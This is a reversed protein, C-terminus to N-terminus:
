QVPGYRFGYLYQLKARLQLQADDPQGGGTLADIWKQAVKRNAKRVRKEYNSIKDQHGVDSQTMNLEKRLRIMCSVFDEGDRIAFIWRSAARAGRLGQTGQPLPQVAPAPDQLIPAQSTPGSTSGGGIRHEYQADLNIPTFNVPQAPQPAPRSARKRRGGIAHEYEANPDLPTFGIEQQATAPKQPPGETWQFLSDQSAREYLARLAGREDGAYFNILKDAHMFPLLDWGKENRLYTNLSSKDIHILNAAKTQTGGAQIVDRLKTHFEKCAAKEQATRPRTRKSKATPAVIGPPRSSNSRKRSGDAPGTAAPTPRTHAPPLTSLQTPTPPPQPVVTQRLDHYATETDTYTRSRRHRALAIIYNAVDIPQVHATGSIDALATHLPLRRALCADVMAELDPAPAAAPVPGPPGQGAGSLAREKAVIAKWAQDWDELGQLSVSSSYAIRALSHQVRELSFDWQALYAALADFTLAQLQPDRVCGLVASDDSQDRDGDQNQYVTTTHGTAPPPATAPHPQGAAPTSSTVIAQWLGDADVGATPLHFRAALRLLWDDIDQTGFQWQASVGACVQQYPSRAYGSDICWQLLQTDSGIGASTYPAPATTPVAAYAVTTPPGAAAAAEAALHAVVVSALDENGAVTIGYSDAVDRLVRLADSGLEETLGQGTWVEPDGLGNLAKWVREQSTASQGFLSQAGPVPTPVGAQQPQRGSSSDDADIWSGDDLEFDWPYETM